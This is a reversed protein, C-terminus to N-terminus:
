RVVRFAVLTIDDTPEREARWAGIAAVLRRVTEQATGAAATRFMEVAREFGLAEGRADVVEAFGDSALLLTDGPALDTRREEYRPSLGTGLPLGGAGLEEVEGASGRLILAPPMGASCVAARRSSVRALSLCMHNPRANMGRLVRDCEDLMAVLDREGALTSFLAKVATVMIGAAVGHGTADGVAVLLGGDAAPRFDYYDGGVETATTMSVALEVDGVNPLAAPLMSLQLNRAAELEGSKRADEAELRQERLAAAHAAREQELVQVSLSQVEALRRELHVSTRAFNGALFLSMTVVSALVGVAYVANIGGLAPVIRFNILVQLFVFAALLAMGVLLVAAGEREITRGSREVRVIEAIMAALYACWLLSALPEPSLAVAPMLVAAAAGFAKWASPFPRTRVAYYTLLGLFIAAPPAPTALRSVLPLWPPHGVRANEFDRVVILALVAMNLAYFLNERLRPYFCFLALHLLTVFVLVTALAGLFESSHLAAALRATAIDGSEALSLTFGIGPTIDARGAPVACAYRVAIVHDQGPSLVLGWPGHSAPPLELSADPGVTGARHVLRGDLFIDAAGAASLRMALSMGVVTPEVRIHRRFWGVGPWGGRPLGRPPMLPDVIEWATDDVTPAVWEPDDGPRFRWAYALVIGGESALGAVGITAPRPEQARAAGGLAGCLAAIAVVRRIASRRMARVAISCPDRPATARSMATRPGAGNGARRAELRTSTM